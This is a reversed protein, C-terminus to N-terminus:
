AIVKCDQVSSGPEPGMGAPETPCAAAVLVRAAGGVGTRSSFIVKAPSRVSTDVKCQKRVCIWTRCVSWSICTSTEDDEDDGEEGEETESLMLLGIGFEFELM